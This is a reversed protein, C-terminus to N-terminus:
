CDQFSRRCVAPRSVPPLLLIRGNGLPLAAVQRSMEMDITATPAEPPHIATRTDVRDCCFSADDLPQKRPASPEIRLSVNSSGGRLHVRWVLVFTHLMRHYRGSTLGAHPLCAHAIVEPGYNAYTVIKTQPGQSPYIAGDARSASSWVLRHDDTASTVTFYASVLNSPTVFKERPREAGILKGLMTWIRCHRLHVEGAAVCAARQASACPPHRWQPSASSTRHVRPTMKATATSM